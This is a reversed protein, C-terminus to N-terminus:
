EARSLDGLGLAVFEVLQDRPSPARRPLWRGRREVLVGTELAGNVPENASCIDGTRTVRERVAAAAVPGALAAVLLEEM